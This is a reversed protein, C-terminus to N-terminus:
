LPINGHRKPRRVEQKGELSELTAILRRRTERPEIIDNVLEGHVMPYPKAAERLERVKEQRIKWSRRRHLDGKRLDARDQEYQTHSAHRATQEGNKWRHYKIVWIGPPDFTL